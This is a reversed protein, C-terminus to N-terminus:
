YTRVDFRGNTILLTDCNSIPIKCEFLGSVVRNISDIRTLTIKGQTAYSNIIGSGLLGNCSKNASWLISINFNDPILFPNNILYAGGDIRITMREFYNTDGDVGTLSTTDNSIGANMLSIGTGSIWNRGDIKCAFINAGTQTAPPLGDGTNPRVPKSRKCENAMLITTIAFCYLLKKMLIYNKKALWRKNPQQHM